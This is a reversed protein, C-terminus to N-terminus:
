FFVSTISFPHFIKLICAIALFPGFPIASYRSANKTLIAYVGYVSGILSSMFIIDFIGYIGVISGIGGLLFVDGEGVADKKYIMKATILLLYMFGAGSIVGYFSSLFREYVKGEFMPNSFSFIFGFIVLLYSFLDSLMMVEIDIVSIVILIYVVLVSGFFWWQNTYWWKIYFVLTLLGSLFEVIPYKISIESSCVRCRGGLLIYSLIPINDYWKIPTKCFPCFSPPSIISIDKISRYIVVNLFSGICLGILFVILYVIM